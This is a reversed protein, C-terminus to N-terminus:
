IVYVGVVIPYMITVANKASRCSSHRAAVLVIVTSM